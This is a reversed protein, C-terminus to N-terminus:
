AWIEQHNQSLTKSVFKQIRASVSTGKCVSYFFQPSVKPEGAISAQKNFQRHLDSIRIGHADALLRILTYRQKKRAKEPNSLKAQM